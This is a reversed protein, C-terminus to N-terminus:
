PELLEFDAFDFGPTVVCSVLVPEDAAPRATQWCEPPVVAQPRQGTEVVPLLEGLSAVVAHPEGDTHGRRDAPIDSHPVLVARMGASRAGHIDDFTRDGVFVCRAPDAVGVADM